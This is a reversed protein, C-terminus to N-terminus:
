PSCCRSRALTGLLQLNLKNLSLESDMLEALSMFGYAAQEADVSSIARRVELTMEGLPRDSRVLIAIRTADRADLPLYVTPPTPEYLTKEKIDPVGRRHNSAADNCLYKRSARGPDTPRRASPGGTRPSSRRM